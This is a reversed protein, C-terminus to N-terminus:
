QTKISIKDYKIAKQRQEAMKGMKANRKREM